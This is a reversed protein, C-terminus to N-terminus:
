GQFTTIVISHQQLLVMPSIDLTIAWASACDSITQGACITSSKVADIAGPAKKELPRYAKGVRWEISQDIYYSASNQRINYYNYNENLM